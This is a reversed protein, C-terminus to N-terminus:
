FFWGRQPWRRVVRKWWRRGVIELSKFVSEWILVQGFKLLSGLLIMNLQVNMARNELWTMPLYLSLVSIVKRQCIWLLPPTICCNAASFLGIIRLGDDFAPEHGGPYWSKFGSTLYNWWRFHQICNQPVMVCPLVAPRFAPPIWVRFWALTVWVKLKSHRKNINM